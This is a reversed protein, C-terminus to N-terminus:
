TKKIWEATQRKMSPKQTNKNLMIVPLTPNIVAM